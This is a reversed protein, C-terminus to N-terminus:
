RGSVSASGPWADLLIMPLGVNVQCPQHDFIQLVSSAKLESILCAITCAANRSAIVAFRCYTMQVLLDGFKSVVNLKEFGTWEFRPGRISGMLPM